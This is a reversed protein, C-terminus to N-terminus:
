PFGAAPLPAITPGGETRMFPTDTATHFGRTLFVNHPPLTMTNQHRYVANLHRCSPSLLLSQVSGQRMCSRNPVTSKSVLTTNPSWHVSHRMHQFLLHTMNRRPIFLKRMLNLYRHIFSIIYIYIINQPMDLAFQPSATSLSCSIM